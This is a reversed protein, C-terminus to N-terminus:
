SRVTVVSSESGCYLGAAQNPTCEHNGFGLNPCDILKKEDGTCNLGSLAIVADVSSIDSM